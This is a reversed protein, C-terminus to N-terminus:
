AFVLYAALAAIALGVISIMVVGSKGSDNKELTTKAAEADSSLKEASADNSKGSSVKAKSQDNRSQSMRAMDKASIAPRLTTADGDDESRRQTKEFESRPGIVRFKLTDFTIEDGDNLVANEIKKGNLYTGNSSNLDELEVEGARVTIRAHNRSLHVVNLCIDCDNSRGITKSGELLFTKNALATNEAKLVWSNSNASPKPQQARKIKPDDILYEADGIAFVDGAKVESRKEVVAGNLKVCDGGALNFLMVSDGNVELGAQVAQVDTGSVKYNNEVGTGFTYRTEVLWEPRSGANKQKIQLM